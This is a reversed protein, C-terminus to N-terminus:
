RKLIKKIDYKRGQYRAELYLKPRKTNGTGGMTAVDQGAKVSDGEKVLLASNHAYISMYDNPHKIVLMWGYNIIGNGSYVVKGPAVAKVKQGPVGYIELISLGAHDRRYKYALGRHMPWNWVNSKSSTAVVPKSRVIAKATVDKPNTKPLAEKKPAKATVAQSKAIVQKKVPTSINQYRTKSKVKGPSLEENLPLILEQKLYIIYPPLLDNLKAIQKMDLKCRYSIGSLTDGSKVNYPSRCGSSASQRSKVEQTQKEKVTDGRQAYKTPSSCSSLLMSALVFVFTRSPTIRFILM